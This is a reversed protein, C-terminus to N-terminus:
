IGVGNEEYASMIRTVYWVGDWWVVDWKGPTISISVFLLYIDIGINDLRTM